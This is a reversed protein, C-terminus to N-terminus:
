RGYPGSAGHGGGEAPGGGILVGVAKSVPDLVDSPIGGLEGDVWSMVIVQMGMANAATIALREFNECCTWGHAMSLVILIQHFLRFWESRAAVLVQHM